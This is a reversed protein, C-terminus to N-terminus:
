CKLPQVVKLTVVPLPLGADTLLSTLITVLNSANYNGQPITVIASVGGNVSVVISNNLSNINYFSVPIQANDILVSHHYAVDHPIINKFDFYVNSNKTGNLLSGHSSNINVQRTIEM